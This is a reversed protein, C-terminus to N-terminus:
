GAKSDPMRTEAVPTDTQASVQEQTLNMRRRLMDMEQRAGHLEATLAQGETANANGELAGLRDLMATLRAQNRDNQAIMDALLAHDSRRAAEIKGISRDLAGEVSRAFQRQSLAVDRVEARLRKRERRALASPSTAFFSPLWGRPAEAETPRANALTPADASYQLLESQLAVMRDIQAHLQPGDLAGQRDLGAHMGDLMQRITLRDREAMDFLGQFQGVMLTQNRALEAVVDAIPQLMPTPDAVNQVSHSLNTVANAMHAISQQADANINAGGAVADRLDRLQKGGLELARVVGSFDTATRAATEGTPNELAALNSLWHEFENRLTKMASTMFRELAGLVMSTMLGFLSSSFGVSMGNLPAKMGEILKGFSDSGGSGSVDMSGILDGVSQVTKMLGMFAGLLGLFVMLGSFYILTSKRDNIRQDVDHLLTQVTANSIQLAGQKGLEETILRYGQGLLEPEQFVIAPHKYPDLPRRSRDGYDVKLAKLAQVENKLNLVHRFAIGAALGFVAFISLNLAVKAKIGAIVFQHAYIGLGLLVLMVMTMKLLESRIKQEM